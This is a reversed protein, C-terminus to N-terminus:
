MLFKFDWSYRQLVRPIKITHFSWRPFEIACLSTILCKKKECCCFSYLCRSNLKTTNKRWKWYNFSFLKSRWYNKKMLEFFFYIKRTNVKGHFLIFFVFSNLDWLAVRQRDKLTIDLHRDHHLLDCESIGIFIIIM